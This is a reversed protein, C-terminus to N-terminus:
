GNNKDAMSHLALPLILKNYEAMLIKVKAQLDQTKERDSINEDYQAILLNIEAQKLQSKEKISNLEQESLTIPTASKPLFRKAQIVKEARAVTLLKDVKVEQSGNDIVPLLVNDSQNSITNDDEVINDSGVLPVLSDSSSFWYLGVIVTITAAIALPIKTNTMM